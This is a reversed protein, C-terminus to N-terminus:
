SARCVVQESGGQALRLKPCVTYPSWTSSGPGLQPRHPQESVSLGLAPYDQRTGRGTRDLIKIPTAPIGGVRVEQLRDPRVFGPVAIKTTRGAIAAM